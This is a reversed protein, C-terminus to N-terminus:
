RTFEINELLRQARRDWTYLEADRRAQSSLRNLKVPDAQISQLGEVWAELDDPPLRISNQSNLVEGLVALDSSIIVRGCAMYEFVKMPSLYRAIDGGSSAAVQRQYPMLLAECAAQYHPLESNPVFGAVFVNAIGQNKVQEMLHAIEEPEGGVVLFNIASLRSALALLLEMGRGAYLHGTYGVTFREPLPPHLSARATTPDPLNVFRTLDVGDPAIITFPHDSREPAPAGLRQLDEALAQTIMVLRRRGRGKLFWHFLLTGVRGKPLDHIEFITPVGAQSSLAAAQPLRTYLLDAHIRRAWNVARLAYDYRRLNARSPLWTIFFKAPAADPTPPVAQLGYHYSLADWSEGWDDVQKRELNRGPANADPAVLHVIHGLNALAQSMKMIQITNARRSPIATPAIVAIKM